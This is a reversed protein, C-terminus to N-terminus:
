EPIFSRPTNSPEQSKCKPSKEYRLPLVKSSTGKHPAKQGPHGPHQKGQPNTRQSGQPRKQGPNEKAGANVRWQDAPRAQYISTQGTRKEKSLANWLVLLPL